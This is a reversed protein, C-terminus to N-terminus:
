RRRWWVSTGVALVILPLAIISTFLVRWANSSDVNATRNEPPKPRISILSEEEALWNIINLFLDSNGLENFFANAAFMSNGIAVVRTKTSKATKQEESGLAAPSEVSFGLTRPGKLDKGEDYRLQRNQLDTEGWSQPSTELLPSVTVDVAGQPPEKVQEVSRVRPFFTAPLNQTIQNFPYQQVM